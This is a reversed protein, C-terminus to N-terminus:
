VGVDDAMLHQKKGVVEQDQMKEENETAHRQGSRESRLGLHSSSAWHDTKGM